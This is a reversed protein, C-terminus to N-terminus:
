VWRNQRRFPMKLLAGNVGEGCLGITRGTNSAGCNLASPIRMATGRGKGCDRSWNLRCGEMVAPAPSAVVEVAPASFSSIESSGSYM